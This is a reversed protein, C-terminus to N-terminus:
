FLPRCCNFGPFIKSSGVNQYIRHMMRLFCCCCYGAQLRLHPPTSAARLSCCCGSSCCCRKERWKPFSNVINLNITNQIVPTPHLHLHFKASPVNLHQLRLKEPSLLILAVNFTSLCSVSSRPAPLALTIEFYRYLCSAQRVAPLGSPIELHDRLTSM